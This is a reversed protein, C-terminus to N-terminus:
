FTKVLKGSIGNPTITYARLNIHSIDETSDLTIVAEGNEDTELDPNWYLLNLGRMEQKSIDEFDITPEYGKFDLKGDKRSIFENESGNRTTISIVGGDGNTGFISADPGVFLEIKHIDSPHLYDMVENLGTRLVIGETKNPKPLLIGDIMFLPSGGRVSVYAHVPDVIRVAVGPLESILMPLTKPKEYDQFKTSSIRSTLPLSYNSPSYYKDIKKDAVEVEDLEILDKNEIFGLRDTRSSQITPNIGKDSLDPRNIENNTSSVMIRRVKVLREKTNDGKTRFILEAEGTLDLNQLSLLGQDDTKTEIITNETKSIGMVQIETNRLLNNNLDYAYGNFELGTSTEGGKIGTASNFNTSLLQVNLDNLFLEKRQEKINSYSEQAADMSVNFIDLQYCANIGDNTEDIPNISVSLKTKVPNGKEDTVKLRIKGQGDGSDSLVNAEINLIGHNLMFPRSTLINDEKDRIQFNFIGNPLDNKNLQFDIENNNKFDLPTELYTNGGLTAVLRANSDKLVPTVRTKVKIKDSDISNIQLQYGEEVKYPITHISGNLLKIRYNGLKQPKLIATALCDGFKYVDAVKNGQNDVVDGIRGNEFQNNDNLKIVLRNEYGQILLGGEPVVSVVSNNTKIDDQEIEGILIEQFSYADPNNKMQNTYARLFYKGPRLKKDLGLNGNVVGDVIRHSQTKLLKSKSDLLEVILVKSRANGKFYFESFIYSKFFITGHELHGNAVHLIVQEKPLELSDMKYIISDTTKSFGHHLCVFFFILVLITKYKVSSLQM